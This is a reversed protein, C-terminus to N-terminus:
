MCACGLQTNQNTHLFGGFLSPIETLIHKVFKSKVVYLSDWLRLCNSTDLLTFTQIEQLKKGCNNTPINKADVPKINLM